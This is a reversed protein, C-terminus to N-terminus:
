LLQTKQSIGHVALNHFGFRILKLDPSENRGARSMAELAQEKAGQM